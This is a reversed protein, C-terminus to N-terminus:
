SQFWQRAQGFCSLFGSSKAQFKICTCTLGSIAQGVDCLYYQSYSPSALHRGFTSSSPRYSWYCFFTLRSSSKRRFSCKKVWTVFRMNECNKGNSCHSLIRFQTSKRLHVVAFHSHAGYGFITSGFIMCTCTCTHCTSTDIPVASDFSDETDQKM